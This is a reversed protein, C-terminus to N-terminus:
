HKMIVFKFHKRKDISAKFKNKYKDFDEEYFSPACSTQQKTKEIATGVRLGEMFIVDSACFGKDERYINNSM